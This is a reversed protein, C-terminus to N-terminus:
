RRRIEDLRRLAEMLLGEVPEDVATGPPPHAPPPGLEFSGDPWQLLELFVDAPSLGERGEVLARTVKGAGLHVVARVAGRRLELVGTKRTTGCLQLVDPLGVEELRGQMASQRRPAPTESLRELGPMTDAEGPAPRLEHVLKLINGGILLRDGVALRRRKVREGNVFTGNTSGLDEVVPAGGEWLIHAHRRSTLEEALVLGAERLRGILLERGHELPVTGGRYRGALFRLAWATRGTAGPPAAPGADM